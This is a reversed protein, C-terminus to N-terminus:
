APIVWPVAGGLFKIEASREAVDKEKSVYLFAEEIYRQLNCKFPSNQFRNKV